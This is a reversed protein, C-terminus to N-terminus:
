KLIFSTHVELSAIAKSDGVELVMTEQRDIRMIHIPSDFPLNGFDKRRLTDPKSQIKAGYCVFIEFVIVYNNKNVAKLIIGYQM